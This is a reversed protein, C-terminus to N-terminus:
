ETFRSEPLEYDLKLSLLYHVLAECRDTPVIEYGEEVPTHYNPPFKLANPSPEDKIKQKKFLFKFKPMISGPSTLDPDYLHLYHWHPDPQRQGINMLDPGTRMTGLLVRKQYIYDRPVTQRDGWGREFDAGFGKRRVQQSHCYICGMSIYVANGQQAIGVPERPYRKEGEEPAGPLLRGFQIQSM